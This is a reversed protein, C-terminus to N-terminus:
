IKEATCIRYESAGVINRKIARAFLEEKRTIPIEQKQVCTKSSPSAGTHGCGRAHLARAELRGHRARQGKAGGGPGPRGSEWQLRGGRHGAADGRSRRRRRGAPRCERESHERASHARETTQEHARVRVRNVERGVDVVLWRGSDGARRVGSLRVYTCEIAIVKRM